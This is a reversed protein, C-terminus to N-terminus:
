TPKVIPVSLRQYEDKAARLTRLDRERGAENETSTIMVEAQAAPFWRATVTDGRPEPVTSVARAVFYYNNSGTSTGSFVGPVHGIIAISGDWIGFEDAVVRRATDVPHENALCEGKAFTWAYKDYHGRPERLLVQGQDDFVVAGFRQHNGTPWEGEVFLDRRRYEDSRDLPIAVQQTILIDLDRLYVFLRESPPYGSHHLSRAEIWLAARLDELSCNSARIDIWYSRVALRHENIRAWDGEGLYRYGDFTHARKYILDFEVELEAGIMDTGGGTEYVM